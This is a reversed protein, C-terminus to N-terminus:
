RGDSAVPGPRGPPLRRVFPDDETSRTPGIWVEIQSRAAIPSPGVPLRIRSVDAQDDILRAARVILDVLSDRDAPVPAAADALDEADRGTLPLLRAVRQDPSGSAAGVRACLGLEARDEFTVTGGGPTPHWKPPAAPIGYAAMLEIAPRTPLRQSGGSGSGSGADDLVTRGASPDCGAREALEGRVPPQWTEARQEVLLERVRDVLDEVRHVMQAGAQVCWVPEGGSPTLAVLPRHRALERARAVVRRPTAVGAAEVAIVDTDESLALYSLAASLDIGLEDTVVITSVGVRGSRCAAVVAEAAAVTGCVVGLRGPGPPELRPALWAHGARADRDLLTELYRQTPLIPFAVEIVGANWRQDCAFGTHLFLKQMAHNSGLTQAEFVTVGRRRAAAALHELLLTGLGHGQLADAVVFAVEARDTSESRDYRAVAALHGDVQVVLALRDRYNVRTFRAIEEARLHPHVGFFRRYVTESSLHEHFFDLAEADDPRIPRIWGVTGDALLVDCECEAPYRYTVTTAPGSTM